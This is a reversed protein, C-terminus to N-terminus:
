VRRKLAQISVVGSEKPLSLKLDFKRTRVFDGACFAPILITRDQGVVEEIADLILDPITQVPEKFHYAFSWIGMYFVIVEDESLIVEKLAEKFDNKTISLSV